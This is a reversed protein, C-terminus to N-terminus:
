TSSIEKVTAAAKEVGKFEGEKRALQVDTAKQKRKKKKKVISRILLLSGPKPPM